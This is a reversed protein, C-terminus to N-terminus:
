KVSKNDYFPILKYALSQHALLSGELISEAVNINNLNEGSWLDQLEFINEEHNPSLPIGADKLWDM